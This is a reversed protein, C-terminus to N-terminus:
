QLLKNRMKIFNHIQLIFIVHNREEIKAFYAKLDSYALWKNCVAPWVRMMIM